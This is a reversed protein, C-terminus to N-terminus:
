PDTSSDVHLGQGGKAWRRCEFRGWRCEFVDEWRWSLWRHSKDWDLGRNARSKVTVAM